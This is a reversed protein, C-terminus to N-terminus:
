GRSKMSDSYEFMAEFLNKCEGIGFPKELFPPSISGVGLTKFFKDVPMSSTVIMPVQPYLDACTRWLDVGTKPGHLFIDAIILDYPLAFDKLSHGRKRIQSVLRETAEEASMAWDVEVLPDITRLVREILTVMEPDDEIVFVSRGTPMVQKSQTPVIKLDNRKATTQM